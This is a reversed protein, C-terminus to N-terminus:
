LLREESGESLIVIYVSSGKSQASTCVDIRAGLCKLTNVKKKWYQPNFEPGSAKWKAVDWTRENKYNTKLYPRM